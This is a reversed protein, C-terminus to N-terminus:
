SSGPVLMLYPLLSLRPSGAVLILALCGDGLWCLRSPVAAPVQDLGGMGWVRIRTGLCCSLNVNGYEM